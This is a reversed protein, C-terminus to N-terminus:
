VLNQLEQFLKRIKATDDVTQARNIEEAIHQKSQARADSRIRQLILSLETVAWSSTLEIDDYPQLLEEIQLDLAKRADGQFLSDIVTDFSIEEKAQELAPLVKAILPTAAVLPLTQLLQTRLPPYAAPYAILIGLAREGLGALDTHPQEVKEQRQAVQARKPYLSSFLQRINKEDTKLRAAIYPIWTDQESISSLKALWHVMTVAINKKQEPTLHESIKLEQALLWEMFPVREAYATEWLEPSKHLCEAPDKGNPMRVVYPTLETELALEIGKKTAEIGAKDGDYAFAIVPAFRGILKLQDSALATGSSAVANVYGAQHLAVVDMQGEALIAIGEKQIAHKALHLAYVTKSKIFVATEPTNWYKPGRNSDTKPDDPLDLLRGTFGVVKGTIDAIPFTIRDQFKTPDGAGQVENRSFKKQTLANGTFAGFPAYGIRFQQMTEKSIGRKELYDRAVQAKEHETLVRYWLTALFDNLEFLRAKGLAPPTEGTRSPKWEPVVVGAKDALLRIAEPFTLGEMEMVFDFIDGGKGCGFCKFINREPNVTFSPTKEGHFPCLGKYIRGAKKLPVYGSILQEVPLRDKIEEPINRTDDM